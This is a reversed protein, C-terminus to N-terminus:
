FDKLVGSVEPINCDEARVHGVRIDRPPRTVTKGLALQTPKEDTWRKGNLWTAPHPVKDFERTRFEPAQWELASLIAPLYEDGPWAKEASARATHRPYAQYFKEFAESACGKRARKGGVPPLPPDKQTHSLDALCPDARILTVPQSPEHGVTVVQSSETVNRSEVTVNQSSAKDRARARAERARQADSSPAEQAEIFSKVVLTTGSDLLCGDELLIPLADAVVEEPMGVISALGQIKRRGVDLLGARDCKRLIFM